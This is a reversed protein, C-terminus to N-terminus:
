IRKRIARERAQKSRLGALVGNTTRRSDQAHVGFVRKQKQRKSHFDGRGGGQTDWRTRRADCLPALFPWGFHLFCPSIFYLSWERRGFNLACGDFLALVVLLALDVLDSQLCGCRPATAGISVGEGPGFWRESPNMRAAIGLVAGQTNDAIDRV